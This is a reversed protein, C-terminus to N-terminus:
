VQLSPSNVVKLFSQAGLSSPAPINYLIYIYIYIYTYIDLLFGEWFSSMSPLHIIKPVCIHFISNEPSRSICSLWTKPCGISRAGDRRQQRSWNLPQQKMSSIFLVVMVFRWWTGLLVEYGQTKKKQFSAADRYLNFWSSIGKVISTYWGSRSFSKVRPGGFASHMQKLAMSHPHSLKRSWAKPLILYSIDLRKKTPSKDLFCGGIQVMPIKLLDMLPRCHPQADTTPPLFSTTHAGLLTLIIPDWRFRQVEQMAGCFIWTSEEDNQTRADTHPVWTSGLQRTKSLGSTSTSGCTEICKLGLIWMNKSELYMLCSQPWLSHSSSHVTFVHGPSGFTRLWEEEFFTWNM